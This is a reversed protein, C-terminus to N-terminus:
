EYSIGRNSPSDILNGKYDFRSGHCPCEWTLDDKNFELECGLHPCNINVFYIEGDLDRYAGVKKGNFEIVASEGKKVGEAKDKPVQLKDIIMGKVASAGDEMMHKISATMDFRSPSFINEYQNTNGCINDSVIMAAVMSTSMGWKKFGTEVFMNPTKKSFQGIYPINDFAVCDEASWHYREISDPYLNKACLRLKQYGAECNPKGTRHGAGGMILMGNYGRFSYNYGGIGIYANKIKQANDLAIVYAKEQHMRMFYYGPTNIIPYHTAIVVNDAVITGKETTVINDEIKLARTHEYITLGQSIHNIFKVPNFQAQNHFEIAGEIHIPIEIQDVMNAPIKLKQVAELEEELKRISSTSYLFSSIDEFDCDIKKERVIKRYNAIAMENADAYQQALELGYEKILGDYVMSHQSTIKATTRGSNGSCITEAEIIVSDIGKQKLLYATLIGAMGGGIILVDVKIDEELKPRDGFNNYQNWISEM